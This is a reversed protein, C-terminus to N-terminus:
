IDQIMNLAMELTEREESTAGKMMKGLRELMYDKGDHRSYRRNSYVDGGDRNHSMGDDRSIYRGNAGRGRRYSEGDDYSMGGDHSYEGDKMQEMKCLRYVIAILKYAAEISLKGSKAMSELEKEFKEKLDYIYDM